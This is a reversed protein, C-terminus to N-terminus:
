SKQLLGLTFPWPSTPIKFRTVEPIIMVFIGSTFELWNEFLAVYSPECKCRVSFIPNIIRIEVDTTVQGNVMRSLM